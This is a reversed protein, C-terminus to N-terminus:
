INWLNKKISEAIEARTKPEIKQHPWSQLGDKDFRPILHFHLHFVSQSAAAGINSTINMGQANVAQMIALGLQKVVPMLLGIVSDEASLFDASHNKPVVLVHGKSVPQIDMFAVVNDDEFVIDSPIEKTIIKCFICDIM